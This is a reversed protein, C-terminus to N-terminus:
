LPPGRSPPKLHFVSRSAVPSALDHTWDHRRAPILFILWAAVFTLALLDTSDALKKLLVADFVDVDRDAHESDTHHADNHVAGDAVHMASAAEQGDFCLHLHADALRTAVFAILVLWFWPHAIRARSM